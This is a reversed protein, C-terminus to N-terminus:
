SQRRECALCRLVLLWVPASFLFAVTSFVTAATVETQL